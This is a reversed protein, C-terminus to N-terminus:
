RGIVESREVQAQQLAVRKVSGIQTGVAARRNDEALREGAFEKRPFMANALANCQAVRSCEVDNAHRGIDTIVPERARSIGLEIQIAILGGFDPKAANGATM